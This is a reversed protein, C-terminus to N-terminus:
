LGLQRAAATLFRRNYDPLRGKNDPGVNLLLNADNRQATRYMAAITEPFPYRIEAGANWFWTPILTTAHELPLYVNHGAPDEHVPEVLTEHLRDDYVYNFDEQVRADVPWYRVHGPRDCSSNNIVITDKQISHITNYLAEWEWAEGQRFGSSRDTKWAPNFFPKGTPYEKDWGGDFWLEVIDGYDSLLETLQARMYAAYRADDNYFACNLDWLSYYLGVKLGAKRFSEAFAGVIDRRFPSNGVHYGTHRSPWLCFGDHHKATLVGYRMGAAAAVEAWQDTELGGLQFDERAFKGDGWMRGAITNPGFHVFLGYRLDRWARQAQTPQPREALPTSPSPATETTRNMAPANQM